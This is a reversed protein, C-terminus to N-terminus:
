LFLRGWFLSLDIHENRETHHDWFGYLTGLPFSTIVAQSLLRTFRYIRLNKSPLYATRFVVQKGAIMKLYKM